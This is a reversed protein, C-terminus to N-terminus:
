GESSELDILSTGVPDCEAVFVHAGSGFARWLASGCMWASFFPVMCRCHDSTFEGRSVCLEPKGLLALTCPGQGKLSSSTDSSEISTLLKVVGPTSGPNDRGGVNSADSLPLFRSFSVTLRLLGSFVYDFYGHLRSKWGDGLIGRLRVNWRLWCWWELMVSSLTAFFPEQSFVSQLTDDGSPAVVASSSPLCFRGFRASAM